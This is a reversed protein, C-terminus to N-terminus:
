SIINILQTIWTLDGILYVGFCELLVLIHQAVNIIHIYPSSWSPLYFTLAKCQRQNLSINWENCWPAIFSLNSQLSLDNRDNTITRYSVCDDAFLSIKPSDRLALNKVFTYFFATRVPKKKHFARHKTRSSHFLITIVTYQLRNSLFTRICAVVDMKRNHHKILLRSRPVRDVTKCSHLYLM